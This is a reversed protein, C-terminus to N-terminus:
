GSHFRTDGNVCEYQFSGLILSAAGGASNSGPACVIWRQSVELGALLIAVSVAAAVLGSLRAPRSRSERATRSLVFTMLLGAIALPPGISLAAVFGLVLLGAAAAARLPVRIRGIEVRPLLAVGIMAAMVALYGGVFRPIYPRVSYGQSNILGIYALDTLLVLALAVLSLILVSRREV